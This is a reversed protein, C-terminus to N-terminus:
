GTRIINALNHELHRVKEQLRMAENDAAEARDEANTVCLRLREIEDPADLKGQFYAVKIADRM